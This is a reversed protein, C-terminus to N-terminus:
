VGGPGDRMELWCWDTAHRVKTVGVTRAAAFSPQVLLLIKGCAQAHDFVPFGTYEFVVSRGDSTQGPTLQWLGCPRTLMVFTSDFAEGKISPDVIDLYDLGVAERGLVQCIAAGAREIILTRRVIDPEVIGTWPLLDAIAVEDIDALRPLGGPVSADRLAAEFRVSPQSRVFVDTSM